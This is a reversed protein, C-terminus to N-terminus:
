CSNIFCFRVEFLVGVDITCDCLFDVVPMAAPALCPIATTLHQGQREPVAVQNVNVHAVTAWGQECVAAVLLVTHNRPHELAAIM